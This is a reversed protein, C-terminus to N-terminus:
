RAVPRPLAAPPGDVRLRPLEHRRHRGLAVVQCHDLHDADSASADIGDVPHDVGPQAVDLEDRGVRVRLREQHAIGVELEVDAALQGPTEAGPAVGLHAPLGGLLVPSVDLLRELASVHDEDGGALAPPVPVPAAGTTASTALPSPASVMPTTVRGNVKSPRRRAMCASFPMWITLSFTSVSITMGFSRSSVTELSFVLMTFAKLIASSTSSWPTRPIVSRIVTGPSILVSKASTFITMILAPVAMMPMPEDMPSPLAALAARAAMVDGSSSADMSPARPIRIFM